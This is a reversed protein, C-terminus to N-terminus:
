HRVGAALSEDLPRAAGYLHGQGLSCGLRALAAAQAPHEIGEAVVELDLERALSIIGRVVTDNASQAGLEAVFSRDIKVIDVPLRRLYSLSSYGTGFDDIALRVGAQKLALLTAMAADADELLASETIELCLRAPDVGHAAMAADLRAILDGQALERPSLNVAVTLPPDAALGGLVSCALEVVRSGIPVILGSAEAAPLFQDPRLLGREPHRWRLLAEFGIVAGTHLHVVPQFHLELQDDEVARHLASETELAAATAARLAEDFVEYRNRGREKARYAASDADRLLGAATASADAVAIGISATVFVERGHLTFPAGLTRAIRHAVHEAEVPSDIDSCVVVFEDGGTRSALDSDRLVGQLRRAFAVLLDDGAAHGLADNVLKFRDLDIFLTAVTRPTQAARALARELAELLQTRNPLGTLPDHSADHALRQELGKRATIDFLAGELWRPEGHGDRVVQGRESIWRITGDRHLIPYELDVPTGRDIAAQLERDTRERHGVLILEDFVVEDALFAAAPYGTLEVIADSVFEDRYPPRADCRYVAGPINEVLARYRAESERLEREVQKRERVDRINVVIGRVLPDDLRNTAALEVPIWSGGTGRVRLDVTVRTGPHSRARVLEARAHGVEDPHVLDLVNLADFARSEYGFIPEGMPPMVLRGDADLVVILDSSHEVLARYRELPTPLDAARDFPEAGEPVM